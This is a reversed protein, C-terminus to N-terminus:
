RHKPRAPHREAHHRFAQLSARVFATDDEVEGTKDSDINWTWQQLAELITDVNLPEQPHYEDSLVDMPWRKAVLNLKESRHLSRNIQVRRDILLGVIVKGPPAQSPNLAMPADPSLYVSDELLEMEHEEDRAFSFHSPLGKVVTADNDTAEIIAADADNAGVVNDDSQLLFRLRELIATKMDEDTCGIVTVPALDGTKETLSDKRREQQQRQWTLFNAIQKSIAFVKEQRPRSERPIGYGGDLLIHLRTTEPSAGSM